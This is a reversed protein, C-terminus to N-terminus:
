GFDDGTLRYNGIRVQRHRDPDDSAVNIDFKAAIRGALGYRAVVRHGESTSTPKGCRYGDMHKAIRRFRRDHPRIRLDLLIARRIKLSPLTQGVIALSAPLFRLAGTM